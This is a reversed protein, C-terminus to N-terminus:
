FPNNNKMSLLCCFEMYFCTFFSFNVVMNKRNWTEDTFDTNRLTTVRQPSKKQRYSTHKHIRYRM